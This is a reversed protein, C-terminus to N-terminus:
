RLGSLAHQRTRLLLKSRNANVISETIARSVRMHGCVGFEIKFLRAETNMKSRLPGRTNKRFVSRRLLLRQLGMMKMARVTSQWIARQMFM